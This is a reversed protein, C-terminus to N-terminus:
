KECEKGLIGSLPESVLLSCGAPHVALLFGRDGVRLLLLMHQPTLRLREIIELQALKGSRPMVLFGTMGRKRGLLWVAAGLLSFVIAVALIQRLLETDVM